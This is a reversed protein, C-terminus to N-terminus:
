FKNIGLSFDFSVEWKFIRISNAIKIGLTKPKITQTQKKRSAHRLMLEFGRDIELPQQKKEEVQDEKM